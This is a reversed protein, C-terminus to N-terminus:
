HKANRFNINRSSNGFRFSINRCYGKSIDNIYPTEIFVCVCIHLNLINEAFKVYTICHFEDVNMHIAFKCTPKTFGNFTKCVFQIFKTKYRSYPKDMNSM